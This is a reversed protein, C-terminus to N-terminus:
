QSSSRTLGGVAGFVMQDLEALATPQNALVGSGICGMEPPASMGGLEFVGGDVNEAGSTVLVENGARPVRVNLPLFM